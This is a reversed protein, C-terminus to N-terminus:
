KEHNIGKYTLPNHPVKTLDHGCHCYWHEMLQLMMLNLMEEDLAKQDLNRM